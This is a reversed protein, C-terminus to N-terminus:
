DEVLRADDLPAARRLQQLLADSMARAPRLAAAHAAFPFDFGYRAALEAARRALDTDCRQAALGFVVLSHKLELVCTGPFQSRLARLKEALRPDSRLLNVGLVGGRALRQACLAYFQATALHDLADSDDTFADLLLLDYQRATSALFARADAIHLQQRADFAIGFFHPAITAFAPDIEVNDIIAHPLGHHLVLSMRGGGFGLVCVREPAPRWLLALLLAQTYPALLWLPHDLDIRSMPGDLAGTATVFYLLLQSHQKLIRIHHLGARADYVVGDPLYRLPALREAIAHLNAQQWEEDM